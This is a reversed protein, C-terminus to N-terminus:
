PLGMGLVELLSKREIIGGDQKDDLMEELFDKIVRVWLGSV